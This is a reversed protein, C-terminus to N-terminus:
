KMLVMKTSGEFSGAQLKCFYVGTAVQRSGADRGDWTVQYTNAQQDADVLTRVEEGLVNFVQLSVHSAAPISYSITTQANFPNPYNQSLAYETPVEASAQPTVQIPGHSTRVGAMDVDVLKYHYTVGNILGTDVHRYDHRVESTGQGSILDRNVREYNVGNESRMLYFGLNNVESQTSWYLTAQRDGASAYFASLSISVGHDILYDEVEGYPQQMYYFNDNVHYGLRFRCWMSENSADAPVPFEITYTYSNSGWSEDHPNCVVGCFVNEGSDDWDGDDNWDFWGHLYLNDDYGGTMNYRVSSCDSVMITIDVSGMAGPLYPKYFVVGDDYDDNDVQYSNFELDCNAGLWEYLGDSNVHHAGGPFWGNWTTGWMSPYPPDPADGYDAYDGAWAMQVMLLSLVLIVFLFASRNM